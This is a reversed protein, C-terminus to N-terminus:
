EGRAGKLAKELRYIAVGTKTIEGKNNWNDNNLRLNEADSVALLNDINCNQPDGDLHILRYGDPLKGNEKEWVYRNYPYIRHKLDLSYDTSVVIYKRRVGGCKMNYIDGVEYKERHDALSDTMRKWSEKSIHEEQEEKTLGRRWAFGREKTFRGDTNARFKYRKCASHIQDRSKNLGFKENFLATLEQRSFKSSNERLFEKQEQTYRFM